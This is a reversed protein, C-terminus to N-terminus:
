WPKLKWGLIFGLGLCVCASIEPEERMYGRVYTVLDDWPQLPNHERGEAPRDNSDRKRTSAQSTSMM